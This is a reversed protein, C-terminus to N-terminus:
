GLQYWKKTKQKEEARALELAEHLLPIIEKFDPRKDQRADWCQTVVERLKARSGERKLEVFKPRMGRIAVAVAAQQPELMVFPPKFSM